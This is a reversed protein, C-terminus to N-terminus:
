SLGLKAKILTIAAVCATETRLVRPGLHFLTFGSARLLSRERPAWGRESGVAVIVPQATHPRYCSLPEAAEYNDLAVRSTDPPIRQLSDILTQSHTIGPLRTCFAQAAGNIVCKQWEGSKWLSSQSYSNESRASLFFDLSTVGLTTADRLIDRSTQPRPMGILLHLPYLPPPTNGWAFDLILCETDASVLTGKGLAGNILGADFKGGIPLRLVDLIHVARADNRPLPHEVEIEHFLIVNM